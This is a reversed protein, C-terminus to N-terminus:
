AYCVERPELHDARIEARVPKSVSTPEIGFIGSLLQTWPNWGVPPTGFFWPAGAHTWQERLETHTCDVDDNGFETGCCPCINYDRPPDPMELYRCVPCAYM